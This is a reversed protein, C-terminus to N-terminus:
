QGDETQLQGSHGKARRGGPTKANEGDPLKLSFSSRCTLVSEDGGTNGKM